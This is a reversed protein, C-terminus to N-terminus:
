IVVLYYNPHFLSLFALVRHLFVVKIDEKFLYQFIRYIFKIQGKTEIAQLTSPDITILM